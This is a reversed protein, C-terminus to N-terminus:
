VIGGRREATRSEETWMLSAFCLLDESQRQTADPPSTSPEVPCLTSTAIVLTESGGDGGGTREEAVMVRLYAPECPSM